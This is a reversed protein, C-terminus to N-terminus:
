NKTISSLNEVNVFLKVLSSIKDVNQSSINQSMFCINIYNLIQNVVSIVRPYLYSRKLIQIYFFIFLYILRSYNLRAILLFVFKIFVLLLLLSGYFIM